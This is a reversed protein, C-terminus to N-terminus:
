DEYEEESEAMLSILKFIEEPTGEYVSIADDEKFMYKM